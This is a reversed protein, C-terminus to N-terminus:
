ARSPSIAFASLPESRGKLLVQREEAKPFRDSSADRAAPTVLLEGPAAAAQLHAALNVTEGLATFDVAFETGVNGVYAPGCHVAAGVTIGSSHPHVLGFRHTLDLAAAVAKSRFEGGAIGPVFIAMVEDGVMKDIIADHHVLIETAEAYFLNLKEAFKIPGESAAMRSSGRIDAFLVATEVEAGGIPLGECCRSCLQPNKRSRKFGFWGVITGGVGSFPNHCVKCRPASPLMRFFHQMFWLPQHGEILMKRWEKAAAASATETVRLDEM